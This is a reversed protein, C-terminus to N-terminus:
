AAGRAWASAQRMAVHDIREGQKIVINVGIAFIVAIVATGGLATWVLREIVMLRRNMGDLKLDVDSKWRIEIRKLEEESIEFRRDDAM